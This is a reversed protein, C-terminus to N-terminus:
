APVAEALPESWADYGYVWDPDTSGKLWTNQASTQQITSTRPKRTAEYRRLADAVGDPDVGALCRSLV